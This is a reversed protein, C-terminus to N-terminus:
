VVSKRDLLLLDGRYKKDFDKVAINNIKEYIDDRAHKIAKQSSNMVIVEFIYASITGLVALVLATIVYINFGNRNNVSSADLARGLLFPQAIQSVVFLLSFITAVILSSRLPKLYSFLRKKTDM